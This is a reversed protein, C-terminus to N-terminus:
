RITPYDVACIPGFSKMGDLLIIIHFKDIVDCIRIAALLPQNVNERHSIKISVLDFM